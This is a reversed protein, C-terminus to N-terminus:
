LLFVLFTMPLFTTSRIIRHCGNKFANPDSSRNTRYRPFFSFFFSSSPGTVQCGNSIRFVTYSAINYIPHNYTLHTLSANPDSWHNPRYCAFHSFIFFKHDQLEAVTIYVVFTYPLLTTSRAIKDNVNKLILRIPRLAEANSPFIHSAQFTTTRYTLM